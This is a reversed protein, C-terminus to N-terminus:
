LIVGTFIKDAAVAGFATILEFLQLFYGETDGTIGGFRKLSTHRYYLFVGGGCVIAAAGAIGGCYIMAASTILLYIIESAITVKRQAPGSFSALSGEGRANPLTVAALASWARSQVPIMALVLMGAIGSVESYIGTQLLLYICLKIVAFAGIHSDKMIELLKERDGCSALADNVDCFGDLHIGGTIMVPIATCVAAFMLKGVTFYEAIHYWLLLAAGVVAGVLPFFCLAYRRNEEKWEVKPVPIRSYMLFASFLSRIVSM